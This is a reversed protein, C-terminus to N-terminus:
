KRTPPNLSRRTWKEIWRSWKRHANTSTATIKSLFFDNICVRICIFILLHSHTRRIKMISFVEGGLATVQCSYRSHILLLIQNQTKLFFTPQQIQKWRGKCGHLIDYLCALNLIFIDSHHHFRSGFIYM